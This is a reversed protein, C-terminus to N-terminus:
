FELDQRSCHQGAPPEPRDEVFRPRDFGLLRTHDRRHESLVSTVGARHM